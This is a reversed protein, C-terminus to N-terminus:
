LEIGTSFVHFKGSIIPVLKLLRLLSLLKVRVTSQQKRKIINGWYLTDGIM